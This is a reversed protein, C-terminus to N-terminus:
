GGGVGCEGEGCVSVSERWWVCECEKEGVEWVWM